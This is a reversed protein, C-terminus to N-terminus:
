LTHLKRRFYRHCQLMPLQTFDVVSLCGIPILSRCVPCGEELDKLDSQVEILIDIGGEVSPWGRNIPLYSTVVGNDSKIWAQRCPDDKPIGWGGDDDGSNSVKHWQAM